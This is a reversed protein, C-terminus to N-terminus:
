QKSQTPPTANVRHRNRDVPIRVRVERFSPVLQDIYTIDSELRNRAKSGERGGVKGGEPKLKITGNPRLRVERGGAKRSRYNM